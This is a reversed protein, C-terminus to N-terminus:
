EEGNAAIPEADKSAIVLRVGAAEIKSRWESSIDDDTVIIDIEGLECLLAL